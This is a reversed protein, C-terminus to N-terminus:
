IEILINSCSIEVLNIQSLLTQVIPNHCYAHLVHGTILVYVLLFFFFFLFVLHSFCHLETRSITGAFSWLCWCSRDSLRPGTTNLSIRSQSFWQEHRESPCPVFCHLFSNNIITVSFHFYFTVVLFLWDLKTAPNMFHEYRFVRHLCVFIDSILKIRRVCYSRSLRRYIFPLGRIQFFLV